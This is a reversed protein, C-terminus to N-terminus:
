WLTAVAARCAQGGPSLGLLVLVSNFLRDGGISVCVSSFLRKLIFDEVPLKWVGFGGTVM